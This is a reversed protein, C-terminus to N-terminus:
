CIRGGVGWRVAGLWKSDPQDYLVGFLIYLASIMSAMMAAAFRLVGLTVLTVPSCASALDALTTGEELEDELELSRVLEYAPTQFHPPLRNRRTPSSITFKTSGLRGQASPTMHTTTSWTWPKTYAHM